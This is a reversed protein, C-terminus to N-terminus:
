YLCRMLKLVNEHAPGERICAFVKNAKRHVTGYTHLYQLAYACKYMIIIDLMHAHMYEHVNSCVYMCAYKFVSMAICSCVQVYTHLYMIITTNYM